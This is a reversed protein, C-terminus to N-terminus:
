GLGPGALVRKWAELKKQFSGEFTQYKPAKDDPLNYWEAKEGKKVYIHVEIKPLQGKVSQENITGATIAIVGPDCKYQM